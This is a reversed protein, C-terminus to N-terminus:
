DFAIELDAVQGGRWRIVMTGKGGADWAFRVRATDADLPEVSQISMTDTPPNEAYAAGIAARGLFPGAPVNTFAMRADDAFTAVFPAWDGSRFSANFLECHRRVADDLDTV